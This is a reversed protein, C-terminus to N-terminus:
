KRKKHVSFHVLLLAILAFVGSTLNLYILVLPVQEIYHGVIFPDLSRAIGGICLFLSGLINTIEIREEIFPFITPCFSASGAGYIVIGIWLLIQNSNFYFFLILNGATMVALDLYLMTAPKLKM